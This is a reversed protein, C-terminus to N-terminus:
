PREPHRSNPPCLRLAERNYAIRAIGRLDRLARSRASITLLSGARLAFGWLLAVLRIARWAAPSRALLERRPIGHLHPGQRGFWVAKRRVGPLSVLGSQVRHAVRSAPLYVIESGADALRKLFTTESGMIRRDPRPGISEDFREGREFVARRVWMNTGFPFRKPPYPMEYEGLDHRSFAFAQVWPADAWAPHSPEPWEISTRGGFLDHDPWRASAEQIATLWDADPTVDDDTFVVIDGLRASDDPGNIASDIARNLAYNKGPGPEFLYRLRLRTAFSEAVARSEDNSSNDTIVFEVRLDDTALRTFAELTRRLEDARNYTALLVSLDPRSSNTQAM